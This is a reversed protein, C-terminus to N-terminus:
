RCMVIDVFSDGAHVHPLHVFFIRAILIFGSIMMLVTTMRSISFQFRNIIMRFISTFGLMVPLTGLGFWMMFFFGDLPTAVTVCYTLALFSIGCPLMGNLSGLIFISPLTKRSLFKSFYMKLRSSLKQVPSSLIPIRFSSFGVIAAVILTVGLVASVINQFQGLPALLGVSAILSGLVGYTFIRGVNYLLRKAFADGSSNTVAMVLPSCMGLCHMSGALGLIIATIIM